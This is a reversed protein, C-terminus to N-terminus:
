SAFDEPAGLREIRDKKQLGERLELLWDYATLSVNDDAARQDAGLGIQVVDQLTLQQRNRWFDAATQIDDPNIEVWKGWFRVLPVKLDALEELEEPSIPDYDLAIEIDLEILSTMSVSSGGQMAPAKTKARIGPRSKTGHRTWWAPLMAGFGAQQLAAAQLELFGHAEVTSLLKRSPHRRRLSDNIPPCASGAQAM